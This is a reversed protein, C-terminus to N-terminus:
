TTFVAIFEIQKQSLRSNPRLHARNLHNEVIDWWKSSTLSSVVMKPYDADEGIRMKSIRMKAKVVWVVKNNVYILVLNFVNCIFLLFSIVLLMITSILCFKTVFCLHVVDVFFESHSFCALTYAPQSSRKSANFICCLLVPVIYLFIAFHFLPKDPMKALSCSMKYQKGFSLSSLYKSSESIESWHKPGVYM